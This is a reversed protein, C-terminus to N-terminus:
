VFEEMGSWLRYDGPKVDYYISPNPGSKSNLVSALLEAFNKNNFNEAVLKDAVTERAFNDVGVVKWTPNDTM